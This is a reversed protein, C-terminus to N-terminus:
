LEARKEPPSGANLNISPCIKTRIVLALPNWRVGARRSWRDHRSGDMGSRLGPRAETGIVLALPNWRVGAHRSWREHRSGGMGSRLGPCAKTGVVESLAKHLRCVWPTFLRLQPKTCRMPM